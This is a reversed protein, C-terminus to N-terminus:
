PSFVYAYYKISVSKQKIIMEYNYTAVHPPNYNIKISNM